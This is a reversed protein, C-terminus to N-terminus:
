KVKQRHKSHGGRAEHLLGHLLQRDGRGGHDGHARGLAHLVQALRHGFHKRSARPNDVQQLHRRHRDPVGGSGIDLPEPLSLTKLYGLPFV